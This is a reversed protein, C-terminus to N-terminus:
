KNSIHEVKGTPTNFVCTPCGEEEVVIKYSPISVVGGVPVSVEPLNFSVSSKGAFSHKSDNCSVSANNSPAGNTSSVTITIVAKGKENSYPPISVKGLTFGRKHSSSVEIERHGYLLNDYMVDVGITSTTIQDAKDHSEYFPIEVKGQSCTMTLNKEPLMLSFVPQSLLNKCSITVDIMQPKNHTFVIANSAAAVEISGGTNTRLLGTSGDPFTSIVFQNSRINVSKFQPPLLEKGDYLIGYLWGDVSKQLASKTAQPPFYSAVVPNNMTVDEQYQFAADFRYTQGGKTSICHLTTADEVVVVRDSQIESVIEFRADKLRAKRIKNGTVLVFIGDIPNSMFRIKDNGQYDFFGDKNIIQYYYKETLVMAQGQSFPCAYLYRFPIKLDYEKDVYGFKYFKGDPEGVVLLGDSFYPCDKMIVREPIQSAPLLPSVPNGVENVIGYLRMGQKDLVLARDETLYTISDYQAPVTLEGSRVNVIGWKGNTGKVKYLNKGIHVIEKYSPNIAWEMIQADVPLYEAFLLLLIIFITKKM